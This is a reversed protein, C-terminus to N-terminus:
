SGASRVGGRPEQLAVGFDHFGRMQVGLVNFDADATEVTPAERGRLFVVEIVALRGPSALLYWAASSNGTFSSNQMYPSSQVSFRGSWINGSPITTNTGTIVTASSMLEMATAKLAPPVLLIEPMVALPKGNPKTQVLFVAEAAALGALALASGAGTSVNSNGSAFFTSNDLFETWFVDNLADIGGVGLERPVQTLAGLDDNIFDTRTVAFMRGYTEAQNTYTDETLLGHKIEGGPGVKEYTLNGGLRYRSTQKFDPVSRRASIARWTMDGGGWGELLFKNAINAFIGTANMTSWGQSAQIHHQPQMGFAARQHQITVRTHSARDRYGNQAACVLILQNLGIGNPFEDHAAQLTQDDYLDEVNDLGGTVCVAAELVKETIKPTGKRQFYDTTSKGERSLRLLNLETKQLDWGGEIALEGVARVEEVLEPQEGLMKAIASTIQDRRENEDRTRALIDDLTETKKKEKPPPAKEAEFAAKLVSKQDDTITDVDFGKAALWKEFENMQREGPQAAVSASTKTDAGLPVFSVEGLVTKRAIIAPGTVVTGNVTAKQGEKLSEVKQVSAGVSAQWPFGNKAAAVVERSHDNDASVIGGVSVETGSIEVETSHGVIKDHDHGRLIPISDAAKTMGSLDIVVPKYFGAAKMLGGTYARIRFTPSKPEAGEAAELDSWVPKASLEIHEPINAASAEIRDVKRHLRKLRQAKSPM